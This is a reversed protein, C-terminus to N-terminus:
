WKGLCCNIVIYLFFATLRVALSLVSFSGESLVVV